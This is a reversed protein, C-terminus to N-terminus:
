LYRRLEASRTSLDQLTNAIANLREAEMDQLYDRSFV